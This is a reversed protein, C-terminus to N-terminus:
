LQAALRADALRTLVLSQNYWITEKGSLNMEEGTKREAIDTIEIGEEL